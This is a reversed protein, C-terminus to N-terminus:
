RILWTVPALEGAEMDWRSGVAIVSGDDLAIWGAVNPGAAEVGDLAPQRPVLGWSEGDLSAWAVMNTESDDSSGVVIFAERGAVLERIWTGDAGLATNDDRRWALGDDSVWVTVGSVTDGTGVAVLRGNREGVYQM